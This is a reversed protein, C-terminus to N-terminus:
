SWVFGKPTCTVDSLSRKFSLSAAAPPPLSSSSPSSPSLPSSVAPLPESPSLTKSAAGSLPSTTTATTNNATTTALAANLGVTPEHTHLSLTFDRAQTEQMLQVLRQVHCPLVPGSVELVGVKRQDKQLACSHKVKLSKLAAGKFASPSLITPPIGHHPGVTAVCARWNMLFNFLAQVSVESDVVLVSEPRCDIERFGERHLRVTHPQLSPFNRKDLGISELWVAAGEDATFIEDEEEDDGDGDDDEEGGGPKVRNNAALNKRQSTSSSQIRNDDDPTAVSNTDEFLDAESDVDDGDDDSNEAEDGDDDDNIAAAVCGASSSISSPRSTPDLGGVSSESDLSMRDSGRPNFPMKFEIGEKKLAERLGRTTPTVIASLATTTTADQFSSPSSPLRATNRFLVTFQHTCVYVYPCHGSRLQTFASLFSESWDSLLSSYVQEGLNVGKMSKEHTIRPFLKVWPLNPHIWYLCERLFQSRWCKEPVCKLHEPTQSTQNTLFINIAEAEETTRVNRCWDFSSSIFRLKQKLSWDLPLAPCVAQPNSATPLAPVQRKSEKCDGNAARTGSIMSRLLRSTQDGSQSTQNKVVKTQSSDLIDFTRLASNTKTLEPTNPSSIVRLPSGNRFPNTHQYLPSSLTGCPFLEGSKNSTDDSRLKKLFSSNNGLLKRKKRRLKMVDSPKKWNPSTETM